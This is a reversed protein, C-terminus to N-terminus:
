DPRSRILQVWRPSTGAPTQKSSGKRTESGRRDPCRHATALAAGGLCCSMHEGGCVKLEHRPYRALSSAPSTPRDTSRQRGAAGTAPPSRSGATLLSRRAAIGDYLARPSSSTPLLSARM